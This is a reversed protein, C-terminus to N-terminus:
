FTSASSSFRSWVDDMWCTQRSSPASVSTATLQQTASPPVAAGTPNLTMEGEATQRKEERDVSLKVKMEEEEGWGRRQQNSNTLSERSKAQREPIKASCFSYKQLRLTNFNM